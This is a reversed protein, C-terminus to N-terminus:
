SITIAVQNYIRVEANKGSNLISVNKTVASRVINHYEMLSVITTKSLILHFKFCYPHFFFDSSSIIVREIQSVIELLIYVLAVSRNTSTAIKNNPGSLIEPKVRTMIKQVM